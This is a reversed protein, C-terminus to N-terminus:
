MNIFFLSFFIYISGVLMITNGILHMYKVKRINYFVLGCMYFVAGLILMSFCTKSLIAHLQVCFLLGCFGAVLYLVINLKEFKTGAIAYFLIGVLLLTWEVAFISWGLAGQIKTITFVTYGFGITMFAWVHSLRNMVRKATLNTIAHQLLSFLYMLIMSAGFLSYSVVTTGVYETVNRMALTDLIATAAIFLAAGIGQIISCGVEEAVSLRRRSAEYDINRKAIAIRHEAKKKAKETKAYEAAAYKAKLREPDKAFMLNIEQLDNEYKQKLQKLRWARKVKLCKLTSKRMAKEAIKDERTM